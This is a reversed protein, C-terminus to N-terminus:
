YKDKFQLSPLRGAPMIYRVSDIRRGVYQWFRGGLFGGYVGREVWFFSRPLTGIM